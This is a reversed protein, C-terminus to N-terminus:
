NDIKDLYGLFSAFLFTLLLFIESLLTTIM